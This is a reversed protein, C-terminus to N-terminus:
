PATEIMLVAIPTMVPWIIEAFVIFLIALASIVPTGQPADPLLIWLLGEIFQQLAFMLPFSALPIEHRAPKKYLIAVGILANIGAVAFSASASFCM